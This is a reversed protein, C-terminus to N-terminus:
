YAHRAKMNSSTKSQLFANSKYRNQSKSSKTTQFPNLGPLKQKNENNLYANEFGNEMSSNRM